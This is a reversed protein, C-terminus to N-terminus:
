DEIGMVDIYFWRSGWVRRSGVENLEIEMNRRGSM